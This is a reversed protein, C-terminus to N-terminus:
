EAKAAYFEVTCPQDKVVTLFCGLRNAATLAFANSGEVGGGSVFRPSGVAWFGAPTAKAGNEKVRSFDGNAILKGNMTIRSFLVEAGAPEGAEARSGLFLVVKGSASPTFTLQFKEPKATLSSGLARLQLVNLKGSKQDKYQRLEMNGKEPVPALEIRLEGNVRTTGSIRLDPTVAFLAVGTFVAVAFLSLKM